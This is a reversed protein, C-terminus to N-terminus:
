FSRHLGRSHRGRQCCQLIAYPSNDSGRPSPDTGYSVMVNLNSCAKSNQYRLIDGKRRSEKFVSLAMSLLGVSGATLGVPIALALATPWASTTFYTGTAAAEASEGTRVELYLDLMDSHALLIQAAHTVASFCSQRAQDCYGGLDVKERRAAAITFHSTLSTNSKTGAVM